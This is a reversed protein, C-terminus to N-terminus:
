EESREPAPGVSTRRKESPAAPHSGILQIANASYCRKHQTPSKEAGVKAPSLPSRLDALTDHESSSMSRESRRAAMVSSDAPIGHFMPSMFEHTYVHNTNDFTENMDIGHVPLAYFGSDASSYPSSQRRERLMSLDWYQPQTESERGAYSSSHLSGTWPSTSVPSFPALLFPSPPLQSTWPIMPFNYCAGQEFSAILDNCQRLADHLTAQKSELNAVARKSLARTYQRKKKDSRSLEREEREALTREVKALKKYLKSLAQHTRGLEVTYNNHQEYLLPLMSPQFRSSSMATEVVTRVIHPEKTILHCRM